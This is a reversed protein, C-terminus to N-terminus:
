LSPLAALDGSHHHPRSALSCTALLRLSVWDTVVHDSRLRWGLDTAADLVGRAYEALEIPGAHGPTLTLIDRVAAAHQDVVARLGPQEASEAALRESLAALEQRAAAEKWTRLWGM